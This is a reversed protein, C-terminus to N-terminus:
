LCALPTGEGRGGWGRGAGEGGRVSLEVALVRGGLLEAHVEAPPAPRHRAEKKGRAVWLVDGGVQDGGPAGELM